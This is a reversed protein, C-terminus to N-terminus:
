RARPSASTWSSAISGDCGIPCPTTAASSWSRPRAWTPRWCFVPQGADQKMAISGSTVTFLQEAPYAAFDAVLTDRGLQPPPQAPTSEGATGVLATGLWGILALSFMRDHISM